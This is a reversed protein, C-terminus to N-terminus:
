TSYGVARNQKVPFQDLYSEHLNGEQGYMEFIRSKAEALEIKSQMELDEKM